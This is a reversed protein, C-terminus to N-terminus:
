ALDDSDLAPVQIGLRAVARREVRARRAYRSHLRRAVTFLWARRQEPGLPRLTAWSRLAVAFTEATLDVAVEPELTRRALFLFIAEGEREYLCSFAEADDM